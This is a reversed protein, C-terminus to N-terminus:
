RTESRSPTFSRRSSSAVAARTNGKSNNWCHRIGGVAILGARCACCVKNNAAGPSNRFHLILFSSGNGNEERYRITVVAFSLPLSLSLALSLSLSLSLSGDFRWTVRVGTPRHLLTALLHKSDKHRGSLQKRWRPSTGGRVKPSRPNTQLPDFNDLVM